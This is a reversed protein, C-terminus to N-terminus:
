INVLLNKVNTSEGRFGVRKKNIDKLINLTSKSRSHINVVKVYNESEGKLHHNHKEVTNDSIKKYAGGKMVSKKLEAIFNDKPMDKLDKLDDRRVQIAQNDSNDKPIVNLSSEYM